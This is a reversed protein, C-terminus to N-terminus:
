AAIGEQRKGIKVLEGIMYKTIKGEQTNCGYKAILQQATLKGFERTADDYLEPGFQDWYQQAKSVPKQREQGPKPGRKKCVKANPDMFVSSESLPQIGPKIEDTKVKRVKQPKIEEEEESSSSYDSSDDLEQKSFRERLEADVSKYLDNLEEFSIKSLDM